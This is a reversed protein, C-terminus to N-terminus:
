VDGENSQEKSEKGIYKGCEPCYNEKSIVFKKCHPCEYGSVTMYGNTKTKKIWSVTEEGVDKTTDNQLATLM